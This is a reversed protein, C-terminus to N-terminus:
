GSGVKRSNSHTDLPFFRNCTSVCVLQSLFSFQMQELMQRGSGAHEEWTADCCDKSCTLGAAGAFKAPSQDFAGPNWTWEVHLCVSDKYAALSTFSTDWSKIWVVCMADFHMKFRFSWGDSLGCPTQRVWLKPGWVKSYSLVAGKFLLQSDDCLARVIFVFASHIGWNQVLFM